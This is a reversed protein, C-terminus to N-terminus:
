IMRCKIFLLRLSNRRSIVLSVPLPSERVVFGAMYSNTAGPDVLRLWVVTSGITSGSMLAFYNSVSRMRNLIM